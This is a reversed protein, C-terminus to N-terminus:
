FAKQHVEILNPLCGKQEEAMQYRSTRFPAFFGTKLFAPIPEYQPKLGMYQESPIRANQL